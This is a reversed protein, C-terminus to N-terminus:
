PKAWKELQQLSARLDKPLPAEVVFSEGQYSFCLRHAHLALRNLLPTEAEASHNLKFNKKLSSLLLPQGDGYLPDAVIPHGLYQLHVRIQHMRGTHIQLALWSYQSFTKLTTYETLSAKGQAHTMMKTVKGPHEKLPVDIQGTPHLIKGKVLGLYHKEIDRSEWLACLAQHAAPHRAFVLVGSTDKDLRHVTFVKGLAQDLLSKMSPANGERDPISLLGSPKNVALWDDCQYLVDIAM